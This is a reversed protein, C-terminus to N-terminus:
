VDALKGGADYLRDLRPREPNEVDAIAVGRPGAALYAYTRAVYVSAVPGTEALRAAIRPRDPRTVDVVTLGEEGAVFAYRFQIAVARPARIEPLHALLRPAQPDGCDVVALGFRGVLYVFDGAVALGEAGALRGGGDFAWARSLFNNEPDGDTLVTTDFAVLGEIRDAVFAYRYIPHIPQERNAPDPRRGPAMPMTAPLAIAAADKTAVRIRQGLPSVPASVIRESFDKNDVNAVDYVAVGAKGEAAYLYEGRLQLSAVEGPADHHHAEPLERDRALHARFFDPYALKHLFSGLVAQPEDWETVAVAEFGEGEGVWAFRGVFNVFNTGLALLQAMWANNDNATSLHCDTCAKTEKARVTHPVHPNFAQSSFGPASIPPQQVYFRQRNANVSSLVLASSSRIPAVKGGKVLGNHGLMFVDTRIVQPNYSAFNRSEGGEFHRVSAKQN